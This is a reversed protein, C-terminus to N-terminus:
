YTRRANGELWTYWSGSVISIIIYIIIISFKCAFAWEAPASNDVCLMVNRINAEKEAM